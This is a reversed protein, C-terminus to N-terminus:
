RFDKLLFQFKLTIFSDNRHRAYIVKACSYYYAAHLQMLYFKQYSKQLTYRINAIEKSLVHKPVFFPTLEEELLSEVASELKFKTRLTIAQSVQNIRIESINTFSNELSLLMSNFSTAVM